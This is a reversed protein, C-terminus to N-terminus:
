KLVGLLHSAIYDIEEETMAPHIPLQFNHEVAYDTNPLPPIRAIDSDRYCPEHHAAMVGRRTPIQYYHLKTMVELPTMGVDPQLSLMYSQWNGQCTEPERPLVLQSCHGLREEYGAAVRHRLRLIEPLRGMQVVGVSAQIDTIRMNYGVVPYSELLPGEAQHRQFDSLNMGQHRLLRLKAGLEGDNTVIIGGEGCTVIKRAHLSFVAVEADHGVPRDRYQSGIACAADQLVHLNHKKALQNVRDLDCPMGLQDVPIIAKTRPTVLSAAQDVDLNHTALDIDCFVPTAGVHCVVNATAIFSYSPVIVEDGPGIGWAHLVLFAGTTWSSVGVAHQVGCTQAFCQELQALRPGGVIWGSAITAAAAEQEEAFMYPKSFAITPKM